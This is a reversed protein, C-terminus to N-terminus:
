TSSLDTPLCSRLFAHAGECLRVLTSHLGQFLPHSPGALLAQLLIVNNTHSDTAQRILMHAFSDFITM